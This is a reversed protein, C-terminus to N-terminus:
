ENETFSSYYLFGLIFSIIIWVWIISDEKDINMAVAFGCLWLSFLRAMIYLKM